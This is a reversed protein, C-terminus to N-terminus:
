MTRSDSRPLPRTYPPSSGNGSPSRRHNRATEEAALVAARRPHTSAIFPDTPGWVYIRIKAWAAGFRAGWQQSRLRRWPRAPKAPQKPWRIAPTSQIRRRRTNDALLGAALLLGGASGLSAFRVITQPRYRLVLTADGTGEIRWGNAYGDVKIHTATWGEPLGDVVWDSAFSEALVLVFPSSINRVEATYQSPSTSSWVVKPASVSESEITLAAVRQIQVTPRRYEVTTLTNRDAGDAYLYLRLDTTGAPPTFVTEYPTWAGAEPLPPLEACTNPGVQWVCVRAPLGSLTRHDLTLRYPHGPEADAIPAWLCATHALASLGITDETISANLGAETPTRDDFRFCDELGSVPGLLSDVPIADATLVLSGGRIDGVDYTPQSIRVTDIITVEHMKPRRYEVSTLRGSDAGDAYLYLRLDTTGAPAKFVADYHNWETTDTLPTSASLQTTDPLPPLEACTNPGVQWVCVRAPLGSLTRHDLTLRYPHGPEADAIPAWLCATHALASLGITDETISANLGAETPTRDDFRFCDELGSVPGLLPTESSGWLHVWPQLGTTHVDSVEDIRRLGNIDQIGYIRTVDLKSTTATATPLPQGNIQVVLKEQEFTVMESSVKTSSVVIQRRDMTQSVVYPGGHVLDFRVSDAENGLNWVVGDVPSDTNATTITDSALTNTRPTDATEAVGVLHSYAKVPDGGDIQYVSAVASDHIPKAGPLLATGTVLDTTDLSSGAEDGLLDRRIVVYSVALSQLARAASTADGNRIAGEARNVLGEFGDTAEFYGGPFRQIVPRRLLQNITTDAGHYGWSTTVQYFSNQPLVLVKGVQDSENVAAAAQRWEEPVQVHSPPLLGRDDAIVDGNWMPLPALTAAGVVVVLATASARRRATNGLTDVLAFCRELAIAFLAVYVLVLVIGVKSMPERLLWFGPVHDYLWRNAGSFPDHLGKAIFIGITAVTALTAAAKKQHAMFVGALAGLPLVWRLIPWVGKDLYSSFPFVEPFNWGWHAELTAVNLISNDVHSWSWADVNTQAGIDVGGGGLLLTYALPVTWWLSLLITLPMARVLMSIAQLTSNRGVTLGLTAAITLTWLALIVLLPPNVALYAIPATALAFGTAPVSGDRGARIVLGGLIGGVGIALPFLPNPLLVLLFPNFVGLLGASAVAIPHHVFSRAFFASGVAAMAVCGALLVQQAAIEGGGFLGVLRILVLDLGRVVEYSTSGAGTLQHNWVSGLEPALGDRIYPAIDGSAIFRGPQFWTITATIALLAPGVYAMVMSSPLFTSIRARNPISFGPLRPRLIATATM